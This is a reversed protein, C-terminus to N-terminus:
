RYGGWMVPALLRDVGPITSVIGTIAEERNEYAKGIVFKMWSKVCEPVAATTTGYGAVYRVVIAGPWPQVTPWTRAYAPLIRGPTGAIVKYETPALTQPTGTTDTYTISTVSVLPPNDIRIISSAVPPSNLSQYLDQYRRSGGPLPEVPWSDLTLDWTQNVFARRVITEALQRASVILATILADDDAIEVRLHLKAEALTLPEVSPGTVLELQSAVSM